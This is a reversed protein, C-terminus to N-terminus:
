CLINTSHNRQKHNRYARRNMGTKGCIDCSVLESHINFIHISLNPRNPFTKTCMPCSHSMGGIHREAHDKINSLKTCAKGCVKCSWVGETKEIMQNIQLSLENKMRPKNEEENEAGTKGDEDETDVTATSVEKDM